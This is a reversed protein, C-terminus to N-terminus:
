GLEYGPFYDTKVRHPEVGLDELLLQYNEIMPRPGSIYFVNYKDALYPKLNSEQIRQNGAFKILKFEPHADALAQLENDFVFKDDRNAYLLDANLSQGDHDIQLLMSHYPTIGIGGAILIHRAADPQLLFDGRPEGAQITAGPELGRLAKKFSSSHSRDFRTTLAINKEYPPASITFWRETGRDDAHPHPLEYHLYQGPQWGTKKGPKFVFTLVDDLLKKKHVLRLEM